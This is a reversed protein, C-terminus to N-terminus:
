IYPPHSFSRQINMKSTLATPNPQLQVQNDQLKKGVQAIRDNQSQLNKTNWM